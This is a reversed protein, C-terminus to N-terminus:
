LPELVRGFLLYLLVIVAANVALAVLGLAVANDWAEAIEDHPEAVIEVAGIRQGNVVVPVDLRGVPPAILAAFWAPARDARAGEAGGAPPRLPLPAGAADKVVIRVHRVLRLQSTLDAFFKEAPVEQQILGVAESVLLRALEMSAAIEVRTSTRAKLITVTGAVIVAIVDVLIFIALLQLRVSRRYWYAQLLRGLRLRPWRQRTAGAFVAGGMGSELEVGMVASRGNRNLQAINALM